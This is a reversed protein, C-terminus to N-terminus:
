FCSFSTEWFLLDNLAFCNFTFKYLLDNLDFVCSFSVGMCARVVIWSNRFLCSLFPCSCAGGLLVLPLIWRFLLTCVVLSSM